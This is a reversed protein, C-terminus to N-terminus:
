ELLVGSGRKHKIIKSFFYGIFRLPLGIHRGTEPSSPQALGAGPTMGAFAPIWNKLCKHTGAPIVLLYFLHM